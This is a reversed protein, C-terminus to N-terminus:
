EGETYIEIFCNLANTVNQAASALKSVSNGLENVITLAQELVMINYAFDKDEEDPEAYDLSDLISNYQELLDEGNFFYESNYDDIEM